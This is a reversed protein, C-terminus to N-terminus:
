PRYPDPNFASPNPLNPNPTQSPKPNQTYPNRTPYLAELNHSPKETFHHPPPIPKPAQANVSTSLQILKILSAYFTEMMNTPCTEGAAAGGGSGSRRSSGVM